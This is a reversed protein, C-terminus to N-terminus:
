KLAAWRSRGTRFVSQGWVVRTTDVRGIIALDIAAGVHLPGIDAVALGLHLARHRHDELSGAEVRLTAQGAPGRACGEAEDAQAAAHQRGSRLGPRAARPIGFRRRSLHRAQLPDGPQPSGRSRFLTTYPFLTDTRTSRPPRLIM